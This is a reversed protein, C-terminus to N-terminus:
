DTVFQQNQPIAFTKTATLTKVVDNIISSIIIMKM